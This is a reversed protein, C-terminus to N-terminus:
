RSVTHNGSADVVVVVTVTVAIEMEEQVVATGMEVLGVPIELNM